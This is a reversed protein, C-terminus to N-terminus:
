LMLAETEWYFWVTYVVATPFSLSVASCSWKRRGQLQGPGSSKICPDQMTLLLFDLAKSLQAMLYYSLVSDQYPFFSLLFQLSLLKHASSFNFPPLLGFPHFLPQTSPPLGSGTRPRRLNLGVNQTM